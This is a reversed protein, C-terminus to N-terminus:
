PRLLNMTYFFLCPVTYLFCVSLFFLPFRHVQYAEHNAVIRRIIASTTINLPSELQKCIGMDMPVRYPNPQEQLLPGYILVFVFFFDFKM